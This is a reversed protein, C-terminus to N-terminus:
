DQRSALCAGSRCAEGGELLLLSLLSLLMLM